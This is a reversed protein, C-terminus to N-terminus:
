ITKSAVILNSLIYNNNVTNPNFMTIEIRDIFKCNYNYLNNKSTVFFKNM